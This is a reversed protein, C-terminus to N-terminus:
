GKFNSGAMTEFEINEQHDRWLWSGIRSCAYSWDLRSHWSLIGVSLVLEARHRLSMPLLVAILVIQNMFYTPFTCFM